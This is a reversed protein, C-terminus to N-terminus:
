RASLRVPPDEIGLLIIGASLLPHRFIGMPIQHYHDPETRSVKRKFLDGRIQFCVFSINNIWSGPLCVFGVMFFIYGGHPLDLVIPRFRAFQKRLKQFHIDLLSYRNLASFLQQIWGINHLWCLTGTLAYM